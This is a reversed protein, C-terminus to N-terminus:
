CELQQDHDLLLMLLPFIWEKELSLPYCKFVVLPLLLPPMFSSNSRLIEQKKKQLFLPETKIKGCMLLHEKQPAKHLENEGILDCPLEKPIVDSKSKVVWQMRPSVKRTCSVSRHGWFKCKDCCVSLWEYEVKQLHSM